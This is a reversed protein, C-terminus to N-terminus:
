CCSCCCGCSPRAQSGVDRRAGPSPVRAVRCRCGGRRARRAWRGPPERHVFASAARTAKVPLSNGSGGKEGSPSFPRASRPGPVSTARAKCEGGGRRRPLSAPQERVIHGRSSGLADEARSGAAAGGSQQIWGVWLLQHQRRRRRPQFRPQRIGPLAANSLTGAELNAPLLRRSKRGEQEPTKYFPPLMRIKNEVGRKCRRVGGLMQLTHGWLSEGLERPCTRQFLPGSFPLLQPHPPLPPALAPASAM